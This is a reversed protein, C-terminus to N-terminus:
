RAPERLTAPALMSHIMKVRRALDDGRRRGLLETSRFLVFFLLESLADSLGAASVGSDQVAELLRGEDITGDPQLSVNKLLRAYDGTGAEDQLFGRCANRLQAVKGVRGLEDFMERVAMSYTAMIEKAAQPDVAPAREEKKPQDGGSVRVLNSRILHYAARTIEFEGTHVVRMLDRITAPSSLHQLLAEADSRQDKGLRKVLDTTEEDSVRELLVDANPLRQRYVKLEDLRRLTDVLLGQTSFHIQSESLVESSVRAFAWTGKDMTLLRDFIERLQAQVLSWLEHPSLFGREVCLRGIRTNGTQNTVTSLQQPTIKGRHLLFQGFRDDLVTSSAWVVDGKYFYISREVHGQAVTLVGTEYGTALFGIFDVISIGDSGISGAAIVRRQGDIPELASPGLSRLVSWGPSTPLVEAHRLRDRLLRRTAAQPARMRGDPLLEIELRGEPESLAELDETRLPVSMPPVDDPGHGGPGHPTSSM